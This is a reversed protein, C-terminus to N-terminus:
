EGDEGQGEVSGNLLAQFLLDQGGAMPRGWHSFVRPLRSTECALGRRLCEPTCQQVRRGKCTTPLPAKISYLVWRLIDVTKLLIGRVDISKNGRM